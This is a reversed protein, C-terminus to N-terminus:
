DVYKTEVEGISKAKKDLPNKRTEILLEESKRVPVIFVARSHEGLTGTL